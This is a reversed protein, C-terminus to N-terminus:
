KKENTKVFSYRKGKQGKAVTELEYVQSKAETGTGQGKADDLM